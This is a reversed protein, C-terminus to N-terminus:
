ASLLALVGAVLVQFQHSQQAAARRELRIALHVRCIESRAADKLEQHQVAVKGVRNTIADIRPTAAIWDIWVVPPRREGSSNIAPM